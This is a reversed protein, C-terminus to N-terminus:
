RKTRRPTAFRDGSSTSGAVLLQRDAIRWGDATRTMSDIYRGWTEGHSRDRAYQHWAYFYSHVYATDHDIFTIEINSLHHSSARLTTGAGALYTRLDDLGRREHKDGPRFRVRCTATFVSSLADLDHEDLLRCGAHLVDAIAARDAIAGLLGDDDDPSTV